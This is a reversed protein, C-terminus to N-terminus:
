AFKKGYSFMFDKHEPINVVFGSTMLAPAGVVVVMMSTTHTTVTTSVVTVVAIVVTVVVTITWIHITPQIAIGTTTIVM